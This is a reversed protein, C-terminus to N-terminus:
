LSLAVWIDVRNLFPPGQRQPQQLFAPHVVPTVGADCATSVGIRAHLKCPGVKRDEPLARNGPWALAHGFHEKPSVALTDHASRNNPMLEAASVTHSTNTSAHAIAKATEMRGM